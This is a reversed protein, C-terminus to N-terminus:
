LCMAGGTTRAGISTILKHFEQMLCPDAIDSVLMSPFPVAVKDRILQTGGSTKPEHWKDRIRAWDVAIVTSGQIKARKAADVTASDKSCEVAVFLDSLATIVRDRQLLRENRDESPSEYESVLLGGHHLIGEELFTRKPEYPHLGFTVPNALVAVTRGKADLAGLHAAMDVGLVGGGIVIAGHRLVAQQALLECLQFGDATPSVTGGFSISVPANLVQWNRGLVFLHEPPEVHYLAYDFAARKFKDWGPFPADAVNFATDCLRDRLAVFRSVDGTGLKLVSQAFAM